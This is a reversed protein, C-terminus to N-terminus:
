YFGFDSNCGGLMPALSFRDSWKGELLQRDTIWVALGGFLLACIGIL